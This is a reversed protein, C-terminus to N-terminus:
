WGQKVMQLSQGENDGTFGFASEYRKNDILCSWALQVHGVEMSDKANLFLSSRLSQPSSYDIEFRTKHVILYLVDGKHELRRMSTPLGANLPNQIFSGFAKRNVM